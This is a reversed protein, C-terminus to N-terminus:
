GVEVAELGPEGVELADLRAAFVEAALAVLEGPAIRPAHPLLRERLAAKTTHLSLALSPRLLVGILSSVACGAWVASASALLLARSRAWRARRDIVEPPRALPSPIAM